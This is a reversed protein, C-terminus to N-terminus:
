QSYFDRIVAINRDVEALPYRPYTPLLVLEQAAARANPCDRHFETFEPLDACNRLSQAAFDTPAAPRFCSRRGSRADSPTIRTRDAVLGDPPPPHILEELDALAEHYRWARIIRAEADTDVRDLQRLALEAQAPTM